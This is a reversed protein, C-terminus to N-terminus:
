IRIRSFIPNRFDNELKKWIMTLSRKLSTWQLLLLINSYSSSTGHRLKGVDDVNTLKHPRPNRSSATSRSRKDGEKLSMESLQDSLSSDSIDPVGGHQLTKSWPTWLLDVSDKAAQELAALKEPGSQYDANLVRLLKQAQRAHKRMGRAAISRQTNVAKQEQEIQVAKHIHRHAM